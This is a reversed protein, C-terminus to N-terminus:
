KNLGNINPLPFIFCSHDSFFLCALTLLYTAEGPKPSSFMFSVKVITESASTRM